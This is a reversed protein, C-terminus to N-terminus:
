LKSPDNKLLIRVPCRDTKARSGNDNSIKLCDRTVRDWAMIYYICLTRQVAAAAAISIHKYCMCTYLASVRGKNSEEVDCRGTRSEHQKRDGKEDAYIGGCVGMQLRDLPWQKFPLAGTISLFVCANMTCM